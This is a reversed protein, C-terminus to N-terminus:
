GGRCSVRRSFWRLGALNRNHGHHKEQRTGGFLLLLGDSGDDGVELCIHLLQKPLIHPDGSSGGFEDVEM